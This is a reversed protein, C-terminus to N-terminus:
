NISQYLPMTHNLLQILYKQHHYLQSLKWLETQTNKESKQFWFLEWEQDQVEEWHTLLKSDKYATVDKPKKELLM